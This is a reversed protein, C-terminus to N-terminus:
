EGAGLGAQFTSGAPLSVDLVKSINMPHTMVPKVVLAKSNGGPKFVNVILARQAAAAEREMKQREMFNDAMYEPFKNLCANYGTKPVKSPYFAKEPVWKPTPPEAPKVPGASHRM